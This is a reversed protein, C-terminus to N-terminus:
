RLASMVIRECLEEYEIGAARAAKPVLSTGTMGPITNVELCFIQGADNVRFDVRGFGSCGLVKFAAVAHEQLKDRLGDDIPAPVLYETLGPTYKNKYDYFGEKPRIEVVPLANAELISVTLEKGPVYSEILVRDSYRLATQIAEDVRNENQVITLGVTSGQSSPKVVAPYGIRAEIKSKLESIEYYQDVDIWAPTPIGSYSFIRKSMLKDMALASALVGSGTYPIGRFELLSQITGDEGWTGHLAIFAVSVDDPLCNVADIYNRRALKGTGDVRPPENQITFAFLEEEALQQIGCAPDIVRVTHGKSRLARAVNRGSALSVEREPSIGGCLLVIIM